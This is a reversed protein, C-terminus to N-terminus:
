ETQNRLHVAACGVGETLPSKLGTCPLLSLHIRLRWGEHSLGKPDHRAARFGAARLSAAYPCKFRCGRQIASDQLRAGRGSGSLGAGTKVSIYVARMGASPMVPTASTAADDLTTSICFIFLRESGPQGLFNQIFFIVAVQVFQPLRTAFLGLKLLIELPHM